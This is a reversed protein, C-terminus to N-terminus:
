ANATDKLSQFDEPTDIDANVGADDTPFTAAPLADLAARLHVHGGRLIQEVVSRPVVVPHGRRGACVPQCVRGPRAAALAVVASVTAASIAPMDGPVIALHSIGPAWGSWALGLRVSSFMDARPAGPNELPKVGLERMAARMAEDGPAIVGIMQAAGGARFTEAVRAIVTGDGWPLLLKPRGMRRSGGAALLIVGFEIPGPKSM